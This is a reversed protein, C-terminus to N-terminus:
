PSSAGVRDALYSIRAGLFDVGTGVTCAGTLMQAHLLLLQGVQDFSPLCTGLAFEWHTGKASASSNCATIIASGSKVSCTGAGNIFNWNLRYGMSSNATAIDTSVITQLKLAMSGGPVAIDNPAFIAADIHMDCTTSSAAWTPVEYFGGSAAVGIPIYLSGSLAHGCASNSGYWLRAPLAIQNWTRACGTMTQYGGSNLDTYNSADSGARVGGRALTRMNIRHGAM